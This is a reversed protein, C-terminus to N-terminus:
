DIAPLHVCDMGWSHRSPKESNLGRLVVEHEEKFDLYAFLIKGEKGEALFVLFKVQRVLYFLKQLLSNMIGNCNVDMTSSSISSVKVHM